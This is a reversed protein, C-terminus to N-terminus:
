SSKGNCAKVGATSAYVAGPESELVLAFVHILYCASISHDPDM